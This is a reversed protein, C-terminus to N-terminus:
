NNVALGSSRIIRDKETSRIRSLFFFFFIDSGELPWRIGTPSSLLSTCPLSVAFHVFTFIGRADYSRKLEGKPDTVQSGSLHFIFLFIFFFSLLLFSSLHVIIPARRASEELIDLMSLSHFDLVYGFVVVDM